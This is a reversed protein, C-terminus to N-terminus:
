EVKTNPVKVTTRLIYVLSAVQLICMSSAVLFVRNRGQVSHMSQWFDAVVRWPMIIADWSNWRGYRGIVVGVSSLVIVSAVVVKSWFYSLRRAAYKYIAALVMGGMYASIVAAIFIYLSDLAYLGDGRMYRVGYYMKDSHNNVLVSPNLHMFDTLVYFSNPLFLITLLAVGYQAIKKVTRKLRSSVIPFLDIFLLPLFALFVNWLLYVNSLSQTYLVRLVWIGFIAAFWQYLAKYKM